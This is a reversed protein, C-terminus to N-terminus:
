LISLRKSIPKIVSHVLMEMAYKWALWTTNEIKKFYQSLSPHTINLVNAAESLSSVHALSLVYKFHKANM